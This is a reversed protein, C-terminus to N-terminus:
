KPLPIRTYINTKADFNYQRLPNAPYVNLQLFRGNGEWGSGRNNSLRLDEIWMNSTSGGSITVCPGGDRVISNDSVRAHRVNPKIDIMSGIVTNSEIVIRQDLASASHPDFSFEGNAIANESVQVDALTRLTIAAKASGRGHTADLQQAVSNFAILGRIIGTAAARLPSENVSNLATNGIAVIDTGELWLTRSPIGLPDVQKNRLLLGGSLTPDGHPGELLNVFECDSVTINSGRLIGFSALPSHYAYEGATLAPTFPSDIRLHRVTVDTSLGPWFSFVLSFTQRTTGPTSRYIIPLPESAPGFCDVLVDQHKLALEKELPYTGGRQFRFETHDTVHAVIATASRFAHAPDVGTNTDNGNPAIYYVKRKSSPVVVHATYTKSTGNALTRHLTVTYTGPSEYLYAVVPGLEAKDLNTATNTRPDVASQGTRDGFEWQYKENLWDTPQVLLNLAHIHVTAPAPGTTFEGTTTTETGFGITFNISAAPKTTAPQTAPQTTVTSPQSSPASAAQIASCATALVLACYLTKSKTTMTTAHM